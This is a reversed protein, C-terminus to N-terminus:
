EYGFQRMADGCITEFQQRQENTWDLARRDASDALSGATRQPRDTNLARLMRATEDETLTLLDAVEDVVENPQRAMTLQDIEVSVPALEARIAHWALMADAWAACHDAFDIDPFKRRRSEINDIGRRKMFIFRSGPWVRRLLPAAQIMAVGPTKDMWNGTLFQARTIATFMAQLGDQIMRPPVSALMTFQGSAGHQRDRRYHAATTELLEPLLTILHGEGHGAYRGTKRLAMGMASTGSRVSGLVFVPRQRPDAATFHVADRKRKRAPGIKTAPPCLRLREGTAAIAEVEIRDLEDIPLATDTDVMFGHDSTVGSQVLPDLRQSAETTAILAGDLRIEICLHDHPRAPAFAWGSLRHPQVWHLGGSLV